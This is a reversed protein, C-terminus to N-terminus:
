SPASPAAPVGARTQVIARQWGACLAARQAEDIAPTFTRDSAWLRSIEDTSDWVGVALGALFAAGLATTERVAARRVPVGLIDAQRQMLLNNVVAGGDVRLDRLPLSADAEMCLVVDRTQYCLSELTARALHARTTAQTLGTITGRAQSEWYPAGLGVFAPVLYVGGSDAVSAALVESDASSSLIQLGDRLWQIAAGAIFVSGELAYTVVDDRWWGITTLLGHSSPRAETGTNMLLFCGTGYTNKVSGSAFCTQGFTAAQQDGVAAALPIPAGFLAADSTGYVASTPRVDPLLSRPIRLRELLADDWALRHIDFLMTRAANSADTVHLQGGSLRWLLFSDITGVALEGREARARAEPVYDLLWAIKTASFYPDIVLGTRARVHDAWGEAQLQQCLPGTRRCQWVIAHHLPQGSVRDWLVVTERQNTVGIAAIDRAALGSRALAARAVALQQQWLEDADHEVWGDHPYFQRHPRAASAIPQGKQDFVLARSSTTGQDLALIYRSSAM